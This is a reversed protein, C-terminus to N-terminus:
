KDEKKFMRLKDMMEYMFPVGAFSTVANKNFVDWFDKMYCEANTLVLAAGSQLHTNIVSLGYVYSM